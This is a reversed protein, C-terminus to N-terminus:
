GNDRDGDNPGTDCGGAACPPECAAIASKWRGEVCTVALVQTDSPGCAPTCTAGDDACRDGDRPLDDASPSSPCIATANTADESNCSPASALLAAALASVIPTGIHRM